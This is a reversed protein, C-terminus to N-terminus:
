RAPPQSNLPVPLGSGRACVAPSTPRFCPRTRLAPVARGCRCGQPKCVLKAPCTMCVGLKCDHPLDIGQDLAAELITKDSPVELSTTKGDHTVTVQHPAWPSPNPFACVPPAPPPPSFCALAIAAKAM